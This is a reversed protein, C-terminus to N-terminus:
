EKDKKYILDEEKWSEGYCYILYRRLIDRIDNRKPSNDYDFHCLRCLTVINQEIGLGGRARSIFHAEAKANPNGCLVCCYNDRKLVKRKVEPSIDKNKTQRHKKM